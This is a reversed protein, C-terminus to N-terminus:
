HDGHREGEKLSGGNKAWADLDEKRFRVFRGIRVCPLLDKRVLAMVQARTIRFYAAAEEPLLLAGEGSLRRADATVPAGSGGAGRAGVDDYHPCAQLLQDLM